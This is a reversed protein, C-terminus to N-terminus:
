AVLSEATRGASSIASIILDTQLRDFPSDDQADERARAHRVVWPCLRTGLNGRARTYRPLGRPCAPAADHLLSHCMERGGRGALILIRSVLLLGARRRIPTTHGGIRDGDGGLLLNGVEDVVEQLRLKRRSGAFRVGVM